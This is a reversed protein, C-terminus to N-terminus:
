ARYRHRSHVSSEMAISRTPTTPPPWIPAPDGLDTGFCADIDHDMLDALFQRGPGLSPDLLRQRLGDFAALQVLGLRPRRRQRPQLQTESRSAIASRCSTISATM